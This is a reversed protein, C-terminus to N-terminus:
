NSCAAYVKYKEDLNLYKVENGELNISGYEYSVTRARRYSTKKFFTFQARELNSWSDIKSVFEIKNRRDVKYFDSGRITGSTVRGEWQHIIKSSLATNSEKDELTVVCSYDAFASSSISIALLIILKTM